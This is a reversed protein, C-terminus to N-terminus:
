EELLSAQAEHIINECIKLIKGALGGGLMPHGFLAAGKPLPQNLTRALRWNWFWKIAEALFIDLYNLLLAGNERWARSSELDLSAMVSLMALLNNIAMGPAGSRWGLLWSTRPFFLGLEVGTTCLKGLRALAAYVPRTDNIYPHKINLQKIRQRIPWPPAFTRWPRFGTEETLLTALWANAERSAPTELHAYSLLYGGAGYNGTITLPQNKFFSREPVNEWTSFIEEPIKTMPLDALWLSPTADLCSAIIKVNGDCAAQFRGPWWVPLPLHQGNATQALIHGSLLHQIRSSYASRKWSCLGLGDKPDDQTLALGAGGCFGIYFGGARVWQRIAERGTEGLAMAKLRAAGGPAFLTAPPDPKRLINGQSIEIAKVLRCALGFSRLTRWTMLGWLHSSDWLIFAQNATM